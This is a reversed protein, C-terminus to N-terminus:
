VERLPPEYGVVGSRQGQCRSVTLLDFSQLSRRRRGRSERATGTGHQQHSVIHRADLDCAQRAVRRNLHTPDATAVGLLAQTSKEVLRTRATWRPQRFRFASPDDCERQFWRGRAQGVPAGPFECLANPQGMGGHVPDPPRVCKLGVAELCELEAGVGASSLLYAVDDPQVQIWRCMGHNQAKVLFSLDLSEVAGSRQQRQSWTRRRALGVVILTVPEGTQVGGELGRRSAHETFARVRVRAGVEKTEELSEAPAVSSALQVDDEVVRGRVGRRVYAGPEVVMRTNVKVERGRTRRPQVHDLGPEIDQGTLGNAAAGKWRDTSEDTMNPVVDVM